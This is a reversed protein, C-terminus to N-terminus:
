GDTKENYTKLKAGGSVVRLKSLFCYVFLLFFKGLGSLLHKKMILDLLTQSKFSNRSM